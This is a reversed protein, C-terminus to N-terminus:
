GQPAVVATAHTAATETLWKRIREADGIRSYKGASDLLVLILKRGALQAQMVLCRGAESIYGTKQLSIDWDSNRVLGNTNRFQLSRRGVAVAAEPMTSLRRILDHKHAERVLLALDAANSQNRSSLGTPEVYHTDKMGLAQAKHNMAEVFAPLGGPYHRGLAHAARNESAMLALHLMEARTLATGVRLRSGSGKETDVDQADVTLVEDLPLGAETVVLATMLKTISAIPLVTQTNKALLVENTDEDLVLAVGSKLDLPDDSAHLGILQGMSPRAPVIKRVRIARSRKVPSAKSASPAAVSGRAKSGADAPPATLALLGVALGIVWVRYSKNSDLPSVGVVNGGSHLRPSFVV